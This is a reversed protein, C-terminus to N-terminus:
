KRVCRISRYSTRAERYFEVNATSRLLVFSMTASGLHHATWFEATDRFNVSVPNVGQMFMRGAGVASFGSSNVGDTGSNGWFDSGNVKLKRGIQGNLVREFSTVAMNFNYRGPHGQSLMLMEIDNMTPLQWGVPCLDTKQFVFSGLYYQGFIESINTNHIQARNPSEGDIPTGDNLRTTRLNEAMWCADGIQTVPYVNGDIDTVPECPPPATATTLELVDGWIENPSSQNEHRVYPKAFYSSEPDLRDIYLLNSNLTRIGTICTDAKGPNPHTAYCLGIEVINVFDDKSTEVRVAAFQWGLLEVGVPAIRVPQAHTRFSGIIGTWFTGYTHDVRVRLEYDQDTLLNNITTNNSSSNAGSLTFCRANELDNDGPVFVCARAQVFDLGGDFSRQFSYIARTSEIKMQVASYRPIGDLTRFQVEDGYFIGDETQVFSRAYYASDPTLDSFKIQYSVVGPGRNECIGSDVTVNEQSGLCIGKELVPKGLSNRFTISITVEYARWMVVRTNSGPSPIFSVSKLDYASNFDPPSPADCSSLVLVMLIAVLLGIPTLIGFDSFIKFDVHKSTTGM